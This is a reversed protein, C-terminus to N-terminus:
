SRLDIIEVGQPPTFTFTSPQVSPNLQINKLNFVMKTDNVDLVELRTVVTDSDRVYITVERFFSDKSKPQLKLRAHKQGNLRTAQSSVAQYKEDYTLFFDNLSFTTEDEVATNVLVQKEAPSYIWTVKGDSVLTQTSTEVRYQNGKLVVVGSFASAGGGYNSSLTQTFEARLANVTDYKKKLRQLVQGASQAQAPLTQGFFLVTLALALTRIITSRQTM